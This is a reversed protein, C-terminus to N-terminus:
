VLPVGPLSGREGIAAVTVAGTEAEVLVGFPSDGSLEIRGVRNADLTVSRIARGPGLRTVRVRVKRTTPNIVLLEREEAIPVVWRREPQLPPLLSVTARDDPAVLSELALPVEAEVQVVLDRANPVVSSLEFDDRRLPDVDFGEEPLSGQRGAGFINVRVPDENQNVAVITTAASQTEARPLVGTRVEDVPLGWALQEVTRM